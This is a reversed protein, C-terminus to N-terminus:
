EPHIAAWVKAPTFPMDMGHVGFPRLASMMANSLAPLSGTCGSEGVGKSGLANLETPVEITENRIIPMDGLRPMAYDMLSGTVLQGQEDYVVQECFAQGWGQVVGGHVQGRVLDPSIVKGLDDVAWYQVVQTVGTGPDIEVEAVHCGNPFTSGSSAEGMVHLRQLQEPSLTAL